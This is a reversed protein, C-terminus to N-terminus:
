ALERFLASWRRGIAGWDYEPREAAARAQRARVARLDRDRYLRELAAAVGPPSVARMELPLAPLQVPEEADVLEAHGEWVEACASHRPVVQPAGTAAHEFSVLGWGEGVSTNLGVDCANYLLNLGRDDLEEGVPSVLVREEVGCERALALLGEREDERMVAHQLYLKVGPLKGSAFDAFGRITLDIRKRPQPRNANLVVFGDQWSSDDPFFRARGARREDGSLPGFTSLDVGHPVVELPPLRFGESRAALREGAGAVEDRGFRTYLVARDTRGLVAVAREDRIFGDVPSYTVVAAARRFDDLVDEYADLVWLDNLLFVVAPRHERVFARAQFAGFVDGGRLNCPHVTVGGETAVPRKNGIGIWHADFEGAVGEMIRRM